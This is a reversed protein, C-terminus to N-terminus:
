KKNSLTCIKKYSLYEVKSQIQVGYFELHRLNEIFFHVNKLKLHYNEQIIITKKHITRGFQERSKKDVHPSRLLTYKKSNTPLQVICNINLDLLSTLKRIKSISCLPYIMSWGWKYAKTSRNSYIGSSKRWMKSFTGPTLPSITKKGNTM